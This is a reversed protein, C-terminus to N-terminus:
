AYRLRLKQRIGVTFHQVFNNEIARILLPELCQDSGDIINVFRMIVDPELWIWIDLNKLHTLPAKRITENFEDIKKFDINIQLSSVEPALTSWDEDTAMTRSSSPDGLRLAKVRPLLKGQFLPDKRDGIVVCVIEELLEFDCRAL